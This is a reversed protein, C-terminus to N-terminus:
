PAPYSDYAAQLAVSRRQLLVGWAAMVTDALIVFALLSYGRSDLLGASLCIEIMAFGIAGKACMLHGVTGAETWALGGSLKAALTTGLAKTLYALMALAIPLMLDAPGAFNIATKLGASAFFIPLLAVCAPKFKQALQFSIRRPVVLGGIFAGFNAHIGVRDAVYASGVGAATLLLLSSFGDSPIRHWLWKLASRVVTFWALLFCAVWALTLYAPSAGGLKAVALLIPVGAWLLLELVAAVGTSFVGSPRNSLGTDEVIRLLVPFATVSFCLATAIRFSPFNAAALRHPLLGVALYGVAAPLLASVVATVGLAARRDQLHQADFDLGIVFCYAAVILAGLQSIQQIGQSSFVASFVHPALMGFFTPGLLFGALMEGIVVPLGMLAAPRRLLWAFSIIGICQVLLM